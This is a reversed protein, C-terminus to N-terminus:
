AEPLTKGEERTMEEGFQDLRRELIEAVRFLLAGRAPAPM